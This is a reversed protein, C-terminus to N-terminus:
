RDEAKGTKRARLEFRDRMRGESDFVEVSLQDGAGRLMLYHHDRFTKRSFGPKTPAVDELTGGLGGVQVYTVGDPEFRGAKLPWSREYTHLHAFFALDVGYKEYLPRFDAQVEADGQSSGSRWSDGYDDDDSTQVDHHHITFKWKASSAALAKELWAKQRARFGPERAERYALNSDLVFIEADGYRLSFYNEPAPNRHYHRYWVLDDEGNGPAAIVPVRGFLPGMGTFYEHTWQFRMDESGGDTLDGAILLLNPREEWILQSMRNNVHPRAEPDGSVAITFPAGPPPATRFSLLGSDITEGREDSVRIRYFYPTDAELGDLTVGHQRGSGLPVARSQLADASQGWEVLASTPRDTEWSLAMSSSTPWNLYPPQTFHLRTDTLRGEDVLRARRAFLDGVEQPTLARDYLSAAKVLDPLRMFRETELYGSLELEAAAAPGPAEASAVERGNVYLRWTAGDYVGVLHRWYGKYGSTSAAHAAPAGGAQLPGFAAEGSVYALAWGPREGGPSLAAGVPAGVHDLVWLEVSMPGGRVRADLRRSDTARMDGLDYARPPLSLRATPPPTDVQRTAARRPLDYGSSFEWAAVPPAAHAPSNACALAFSAVAAPPIRRWISGNM